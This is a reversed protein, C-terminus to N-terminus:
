SFSRRAPDVLSFVNVGAEDGEDRNGPWRWVM